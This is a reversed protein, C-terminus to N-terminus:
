LFQRFCRGANPRYALIRGMTQLPLPRKRIPIPRPHLPALRPHMPRANPGSEGGAVIWDIWDKDSGDNGAEAQFIPGLLVREGCKPCTPEYTPEDNEAPPWFQEEVGYFDCAQCRLDFPLYEGLNVPGLLPEMSLWRIAAPTQLLLPIREDAHKQDEVSVGLWVNPLPGDGYGAAWSTIARALEPTQSWQDEDTLRLWPFESEAFYDRMRDARKTLVQYTHHPTLAMIAFIQDLWQDPVWSGFLDTMSCPFIMRPRTWRLPQTLTQEDLFLEVLKSDAANYRIANKFRPQMREAYCNACGPSVKECFHGIGGTEM